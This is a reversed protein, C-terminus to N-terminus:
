REERASRWTLEADRIYGKGEEVSVAEGDLQAVDHRRERGRNVRREGAKQMRRRAETALRARLGGGGAAAASGIEEEVGAGVVASSDCVGGIHTDM